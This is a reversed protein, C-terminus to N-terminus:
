TPQPANSEELGSKIDLLAFGGAILGSAEARFASPDPIEGPTISHVQKAFFYDCWFRVRDHPPLDVTSFRVQM